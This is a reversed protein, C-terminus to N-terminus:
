TADEEWSAVHFIRAHEVFAHSLDGQCTVHVVLHQRNSLDCDDVTMLSNCLPCRRTAENTDTYRRKWAPEELLESEAKHIAHELESLRLRIEAEDKRMPIGDVVGDPLDDLLFEFVDRVVHAVEPRVIKKIDM